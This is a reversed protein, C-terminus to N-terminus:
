DMQEYRKKFLELYYSDSCFFIEKHNCDQKAKVELRKKFTKSSELKAVFPRARRRLGKDSSVLLYHKHPQNEILKIIYEDANYAGQSYVILLNPAHQEGWDEEKGKGDFVITVPEKAKSAFSKVKNILDLRLRELDNEEFDDLYHSFLLNYGDIITTYHM